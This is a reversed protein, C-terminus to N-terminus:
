KRNRQAENAIKIALKENFKGQPKRYKILNCFEDYRDSIDDQLSPNTSGNYYFNLIENRAYVTFCIGMIFWEYDERKVKDISQSIMTGNDILVLFEEVTPDSNEPIQVEGLGLRGLMYKIRLRHGVETYTVYNYKHNQRFIEGDAELILGSEKLMHYYFSNPKNM